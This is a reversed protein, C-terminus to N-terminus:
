QVYHLPTGTAEWRDSLLLWLGLHGLTIEGESRAEERVEDGRLGVRQESQKTCLLKMKINKKELQEM